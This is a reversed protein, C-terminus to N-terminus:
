ARASTAPSPPAQAVTEHNAHLTRKTPDTFVLRIYTRQKEQIKGFGTVPIATLANWALIDM